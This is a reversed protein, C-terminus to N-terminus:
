TAAYDLIALIIFQGVYQGGGDRVIFGAHCGVPSVHILRRIPTIAIQIEAVCSTSVVCAKYPLYTGAIL